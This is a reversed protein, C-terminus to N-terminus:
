TCLVNYKFYGSGEHHKFQESLESKTRMKLEYKYWGIWTELYKEVSESESMMLITSVKKLIRTSGLETPDLSILKFSKMVRRQFNIIM